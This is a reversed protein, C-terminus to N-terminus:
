IDLARTSPKKGTYKKAASITNLKAWDELRKIQKEKTKAIPIIYEAAVKTTGMRKALRCCTEVEAGTWKADDIDKDWTVGFLKSYRKIIGKRTDLDPLGVYFAGSDWRGARLWEPDMSDIDNCTAIVYVGPPRTDSLFKLFQSMARKTTGGDTSGSAGSSAGALGKEIEDVFLICPANVRIVDLAQKVMQETDGVLGGFMEALEMEFVIKGAAKGIARAFTTKGTGPPGVLIVGKAEPDGINMLVFEKMNDYGILDELNQEYKGIKIGSTKEVERAKRESVIVPDLKGGTKVLSYSFANAIEQRTMGKAATILEVRMDDDPEEFKPNGRASFIIKDLEKEIEAEGPLSFSIPLFGRQLVPPIAKDFPLSGVIILVRRVEKTSWIPFRNIISSAFNKDVEKYDDWLFWNWNKAVMVTGPEASEDDLKSLVIEPDQDSEFDWFSLKYNQKDTQANYEDIGVRIADLTRDFEETQCYFFSYGARLSFILEQIGNM